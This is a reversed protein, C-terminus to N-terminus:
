GDKMSKKDVVSIVNTVFLAGFGAKRPIEGWKKTKEGYVRRSERKKRIHLFLGNKQLRRCEAYM